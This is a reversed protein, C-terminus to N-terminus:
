AAESLGHRRANRAVRQHHRQWAAPAEGSLTMLLDEPHVYLTQPNANHPGWGTRGIILVYSGQTAHWRWFWTDQRGKAGWWTIYAKSGRRTRQYTLDIKALWPGDARARGLMREWRTALVADRRLKRHHSWWCGLVIIACTAIITSSEWITHSNSDFM